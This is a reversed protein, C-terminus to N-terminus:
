LREVAEFIYMPWNLLVACRDQYQLPCSALREAETVLEAGNVPLINGEYGCKKRRWDDRVRGDIM